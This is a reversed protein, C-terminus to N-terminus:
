PFMQLIDKINNEKAMIKMVFNGCSKSLQTALKKYKLSGILNIMLYIALMNETKQYQKIM